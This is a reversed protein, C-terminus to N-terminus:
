MRSYGIARAQGQARQQTAAATEAHVKKGIFSKWEATPNHHQSTMVDETENPWDPPAGRSRAELEKKTLRVGSSTPEDQDPKAASVDSQVDSEPGPRSLLRRSRIPSTDRKSGKLKPIPKTPTPTAKSSASMAGSRADWGTSHRQEDDSDWTDDVEDM